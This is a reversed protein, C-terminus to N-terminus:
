AAVTEHGVLWARRRWERREHEVLKDIGSRTLVDMRNRPQLSFGVASSDKCHGDWATHRQMGPDTNVSRMNNWAAGCRRDFPSSGYANM